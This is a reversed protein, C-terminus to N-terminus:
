WAYDENNFVAQFESVFDSFTTYTTPLDLSFNCTHAIPRRALGDLRNFTVSIGCM